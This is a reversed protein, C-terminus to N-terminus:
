DPPPGPEDLPTPSIQKTAADVRRIDFRIDTRPEVTFGKVPVERREIAYPGLLAAEFTGIRKLRAKVSKDVAEYEAKAAKLEERREINELLELEGEIPVVGAGLDRPPYCLARFGCEGCIREEYDIPPPSTKAQVMEHLREIRSVVREAYSADLEFPVSKLMGTLKNKMVLVGAELEELMLYLQSQDAYGRVYHERATLIDSYTDVADFSRPSASKVELLLPKAWKEGNFGILRGDVRGSIVAGNRLTWQRPRDSERVIQFGIAELRAYVSPQHLNGEDFISQLTTGHPEMEQWRLFRWVMYRDCPHGASSPYFARAPYVSIRKKLAAAQAADFNEPTLVVPLM